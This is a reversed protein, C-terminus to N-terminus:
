KTDYFGNIIGLIEKGYKSIKAKGFGRINGLMELNKPAALTMDALEKNTSIAFAPVGEKEVREKRWARLKEFLVKQTDSLQRNTKEAPTALLPDYAVMVTWFFDGADQFFEARYWKVQKNLLIKNLTEDGFQKLDCNFPITIIKFMNSVLRDQPSQCSILDPYTPNFRAICTPNRM